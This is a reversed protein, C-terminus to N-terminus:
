QFLTLARYGFYFFPAAFALSDISDLIGGRGPMVGGSDKVGASRKMASEVLDGAQSVLATGMGLILATAPPSLASANFIEPALRLSVFSVALAGLLSGIYGAISKNPSVPIIGRNNRGLLVGFAWGFSDSVIVTSLYLAFLPSAAPMSNLLISWSIFLSPYFLVALGGAVREMYVDLMPGHAVIGRGLIWVALLMVVCVPVFLSIGFSVSATLALPPFFGYVFAETKRLWLGKKYLIVSLEMSALASLLAVLLNVALHNKYPLFVVIGLCLPFGIFFVGLRALIKKM